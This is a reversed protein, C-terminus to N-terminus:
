NMCFKKRDENLFAYDIETSSKRGFRLFKELKEKEKQNNKLVLSLVNFPFENVYIM